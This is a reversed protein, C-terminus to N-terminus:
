PHSDIMVGSGPWLFLVINIYILLSCPQQFKQSLSLFPSLCLPSLSFLFSLPTLSLHSIPSLFFLPPSLFPSLSPFLSLLLDKGIITIMWVMLYSFLSLWVLSLIFTVIVWKRWRTHRCDPVTLYLLVKIPVSVVFVCRGIASSPMEFVSHPEETSPQGLSFWVFTWM